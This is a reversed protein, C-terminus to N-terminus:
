KGLGPATRYRSLDLNRRTVVSSITNQEIRAACQLPPEVPGIQIIGVTRYKRPALRKVGFICWLLSMSCIRMFKFGWLVVGYPIIRDVM